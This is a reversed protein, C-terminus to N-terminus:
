LKIGPISVDNCVRSGLAVIRQLGAIHVSVSNPVFLDNVAFLPFGVPKGRLSDFFGRPSPPRLGRLSYDSKAVHADFGCFAKRLM